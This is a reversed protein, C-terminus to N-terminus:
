ACARPRNYSAIWTRRQWVSHPLGTLEALQEARKALALVDAGRAVVTRRFARDAPVDKTIHYAARM